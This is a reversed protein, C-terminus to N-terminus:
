AEPQQGIASVPGFYDVGFGAITVPVFMQGAGKFCDPASAAASDGSGSRDWIERSAPATEKLAYFSIFDTKSIKM